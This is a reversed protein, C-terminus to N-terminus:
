EISSSNFRTKEKIEIQLLYKEKDETQLLTQIRNFLVDDRQRTEISKYKNENTTIVIKGYRDRLGSHSVDVIKNYPIFIEKKKRYYFYIGNCDAQIAIKPETLWKFLLAILICLCVVLFFLPIFLLRKDETFCVWIIMLVIVGSTVILDELTVNKTALTYRKEAVLEKEM